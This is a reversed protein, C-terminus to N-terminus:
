QSPTAYVTLDSPPLCVEEDCARATVAGRVPTGAALAGGPLTATITVTGEYVGLTRDLFNRKFAGAKPSEIREPAVGTLAADRGSM